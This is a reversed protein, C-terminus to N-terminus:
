QAVGLRSVQQIDIRQRGKGGERFLEKAFDAASQQEFVWMLGFNESVRLQRASQDLWQRSLSDEGWEKGLAWEYNGKIEVRLGTRRQCDNLYVPANEIPDWFMYGYGRPTPNDPNIRLKIQDEYDKDKAGRDEGRGFKDPVPTPCLNPGDKDALDSSVEAPDVALTGDPLLRAVIRDGDHFLRDPELTANIDRLGNPGAYTLRLM